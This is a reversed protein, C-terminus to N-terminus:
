LRSSSPLCDRLAGEITLPLLKLTLPSLKLGCPFLDSLSSVRDACLRNTSAIPGWAALLAAGDGVLPLGCPVGLLPVSWM